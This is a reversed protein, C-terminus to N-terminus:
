VETRNTTGHAKKWKAHHERIIKLISPGDEVCVPIDMDKPSALPCDDRLMYTKCWQVLDAYM